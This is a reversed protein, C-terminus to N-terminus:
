KDKRHLKFNQLLINRIDALRDDLMRNLAKIKGAVYGLFLFFIGTLFCGAAIGIGYNILFDRMFKQLYDTLTPSGIGLEFVIPESPASVIVGAGGLIGIFIIIIGIIYYFKGM